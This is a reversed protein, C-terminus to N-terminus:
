EVIKAVLHHILLPITTWTKQTVSGLHLDWFRGMTAHIDTYM